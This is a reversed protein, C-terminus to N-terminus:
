AQRINKRKQPILVNENSIMATGKSSMMLREVALNKGLVAILHKLIDILRNVGLRNVGLWFDILIEM